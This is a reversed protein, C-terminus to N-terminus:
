ERKLVPPAPFFSEEYVTEPIVRRVGAQRKKKATVVDCMSDLTFYIGTFCGKDDDITYIKPAFILETTTDGWQMKVDVQGDRYGIKVSTGIFRPKPEKKTGRARSHKPLRLWFEIIDNLFQQLESNIEIQLKNKGYSEGVYQVMASSMKLLVTTYQETKPDKVLISGQSGLRLQDLTKSLVETDECNVVTKSFTSFTAM